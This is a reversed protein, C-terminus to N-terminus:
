ERRIAKERRRTGRPVTGFCSDASRFAFGRFDVGFFFSELSVPGTSFATALALYGRM